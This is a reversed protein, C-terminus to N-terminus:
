EADYKEPKNALVFVTQSSIIVCLVDECFVVPDAPNVRQTVPNAPDHSESWKVAKRLAFVTGPSVHIFIVLAPFLCDIITAIGTCFGLM